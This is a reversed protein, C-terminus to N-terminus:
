ALDSEADGPASGEGAAHMVASMHSSTFSQMLPPSSILRRFDSFDCIGTNAPLCSSRGQESCSLRHLQAKRQLRHSSTPQLQTHTASLPYRPLAHATPPQQCAPSAASARRRVRRACSMASASAEQMSHHCRWCNFSAARRCRTLLPDSQTGCVTTLTNVV